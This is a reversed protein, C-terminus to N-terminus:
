VSALRKMLMNNNLLNSPTPVEPTYHHYDKGQNFMLGFGLAWIYGCIIYLLPHISLGFVLESQLEKKRKKAMYYHVGECIM